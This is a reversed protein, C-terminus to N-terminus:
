LQSVRERIKELRFIKRFEEESPQFVTMQARMSNATSSHSLQYEELEEPKLVQALESERQKEIRRLTNQDEDLLM